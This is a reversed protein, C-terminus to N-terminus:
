KVRNYVAGDFNLTDGNLSYPVKVTEEALGFFGKMKIEMETDSVVNYEMTMLMDLGALADQVEAESAEDGSLGSLIDTTLGYRLKGDNTFEIGLGYDTADAEDAIQWTGILAQQNPNCASLSFVTIVAFVIILFKKM